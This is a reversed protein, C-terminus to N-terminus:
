RKYNRAQAMISVKLDKCVFIKMYKSPGLFLMIMLTRISGLFFLM